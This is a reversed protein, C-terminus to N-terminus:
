MADHTGVVFRSSMISQLLCKNILTIINTTNPKIAFLTHLDNWCQYNYTKHKAVRTLMLDWVKNLMDCSMILATVKQIASLICRKPTTVTPWMSITSLTKWLNLTKM